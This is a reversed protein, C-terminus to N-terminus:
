NRGGDVFYTQNTCMRASDSCLFLVFEAIDDPQLEDPICQLEQRKADSEPTWWLRKQKETLVWGPVIQNVRIGQRGYQRAAARTLGFVGAKAIGYVPMMSAGIYAAHSGINVIAGGGAEAMPGALNQTMFFSHRVNVAILDDFAEETLDGFAHRADNAANNVLFAPAPGAGLIANCCANVAGIDRLDCRHFTLRGTEDPSPTWDPAAIDLVDVDCGHRLFGAAIAAGIGSAGGTVVARRGALGVYHSHGTHM